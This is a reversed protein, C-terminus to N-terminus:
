LQVNHEIRKVTNLDYNFFIRQKKSCKSTKRRKESFKRM